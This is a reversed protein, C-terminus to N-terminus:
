EQTHVNQNREKLSIANQTAPVSVNLFRLVTENLRLKEEIKKVTDNLGDFLITTYFGKKHRKIPYALNILGWSYSDIIKAGFEELNNNILTLQDNLQNQSLEGRTIFTMEYRHM